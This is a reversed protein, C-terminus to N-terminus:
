EPEQDLENAMGESIEIGAKILTAHPISICRMRQNGIRLPNTMTAGELQMLTSRLEAREWPTGRLGGSLGRHGYQVMLGAMGDFRVGYLDAVM